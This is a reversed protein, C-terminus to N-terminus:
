AGETPSPARWIREGMVYARWQEANIPRWDDMRLFYDKETSDWAVCGGDRVSVSCTWIGDGPPEGDVEISRIAFSDGGGASDLFGGTGTDLEHVLCIGEGHLFAVVAKNAAWEEKPDLALTFTM